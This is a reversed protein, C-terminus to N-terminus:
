ENKRNHSDMISLSVIILGQIGLMCIIGFGFILNADVGYLIRGKFLAMYSMYVMILSGVGYFYKEILKM